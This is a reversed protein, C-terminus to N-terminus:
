QSHLSQWLLRYEFVSIEHFDRSIPNECNIYEMGWNAHTHTAIVIALRRHFIDDVRMKTHIRKLKIHFLAIEYMVVWRQDKQGFEGM